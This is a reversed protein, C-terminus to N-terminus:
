ERNACCKGCPCLAGPLYVNNSNKNKENKKNSILVLLIFYFHSSESKKSYLFSQVVFRGDTRSASGIHLQWSLGNDILSIGARNTLISFSDQLTPNRPQIPPKAVTKTKGNFQKNM